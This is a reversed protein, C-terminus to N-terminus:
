FTRGFAVARDDEFRVWGEAWGDRDLTGGVPPGLALWVAARSLGLLAEAGTWCGNEVEAVRARLGIRWGRAEADGFAWTRLIGDRAVGTREGLVETLGGPTRVAACASETEVELARAVEDPALGPAVSDFAPGLPDIRRRLPLRLTPDLDWPAPGALEGKVWSRLFPGVEAPRLPATWVGPADSAWLRLAGADVLQLAVSDPAGDLPARGHTGVRGDVPFGAALLRDVGSTWGETVAVHLANGPWGRYVGVTEADEGLELLRELREMDKAAAARLVPP